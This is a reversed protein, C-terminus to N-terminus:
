LYNSRLQRLKKEAREVRDKQEYFGFWSYWNPRKFREIYSELWVIMHIKQMEKQRWNESVIEDLILDSSM